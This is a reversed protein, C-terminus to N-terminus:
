YKYISISSIHDLRAQEYNISHRIIQLAPGNSVVSEPEGWSSACVYYLPSRLLFNIRLRGTNICRLKDGDELFVSLLAQVVGM